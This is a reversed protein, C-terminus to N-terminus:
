HLGCYSPVTASLSPLLPLIVTVAASFAQGPPPDPCYRPSLSVAAFLSLPPVFKAQRFLIHCSSLLPPPLIAAVVCRFLLSLLLLLPLFVGITATFVQWQPLPLPLVSAVVAAICTQAAATATQQRKETM